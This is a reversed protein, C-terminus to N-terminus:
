NITTGRFLYQLKNLFVDRVIVLEHIFNCLIRKVLEHIIFVRYQGFHLPQPAFCFLGVFTNVNECSHLITKNNTATICSTAQLITLYGMSAPPHKPRNNNCTIIVKRLQGKGAKKNTPWKSYESTSNQM